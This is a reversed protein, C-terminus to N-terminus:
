GRYAHLETTRNDVVYEIWLKGAGADLDGAADVHTATMTVAEATDIVSDTIATFATIAAVKGNIGAKYRDVDDTGETDGVTITTSTEANFATTIDVAGRLIRSGAPLYIMPKAVGSPLDQFDFDREAYLVTQRNINVPTSM